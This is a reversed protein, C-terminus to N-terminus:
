FPGHVVTGHNENTCLNASNALSEPNDDGVSFAAANYNGLLNLNVVPGGIAQDSVTLVGGTHQANETFSVSTMGKVFAVDALDITDLSGATGAVTGTFGQSDDLKLLSEFNGFSVNTSSAGALELTSGADIKATGNFNLAKDVVLAGGGQVDLVGTGTLDGAFHEMSNLHFTLNGNDTISGTVATGDSATVLGGQNITAGDLAGVIVGNGGSNVTLNTDTSDAFLQYETGGSNVVASDSAATTGVFEKGGNNIVTGVANSSLELNLVAGDGTLTTDIAKGGALVYGDNVDGGSAVIASNQLIGGDFVNLDGGQDSTGTATGFIEEESEDKLVAGVSNGGASVSLFASDVTTNTAIGGADVSLEGRNTVTTNTLDVGAAVGVVVNAGSVTGGDVTPPPASPPPASPPPTVLPPQAMPAVVVSIDTGTGGDSALTFADGAYDGSLALQEIVQGSAAAITLTGGTAAANEAFSAKDGAAFAVDALDLVDETGVGLGSITGTFSQPHDLKLTSQFDSLNVNTNSAGALELTSSTDIQATGNFNLANDVVLTGGSQVELVGTGTLNGTFHETGNLHFTLNGNDVISGKVVTGDSATVVGGRDITAGDLTGVIVGNGGSKVTLNTDTSDAFLQYETGGSGVVASDSVAKTGVFEKGGNNIMTGVANSSLELNLVAGDGNLTTKIAKGGALVYGDDVDGGSADIESNQLIGGAFVNLDGGRDITGTATGFIEEESENTLVAGVTNGGAAVELFGGDVMTGTATGGAAVRLSGRDTVTTNTFDVGAAVAVVNGDTVSQGDVVQTTVPQARKITKMCEREISPKKLPLNNLVSGM